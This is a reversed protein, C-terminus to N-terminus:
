TTTTTKKSYPNNNPLGQIEQTLVIINVALNPVTNSMMVEFTEETTGNNERGDNGSM